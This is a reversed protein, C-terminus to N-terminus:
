EGLATIVALRTIAIKCREYKDAPVWFVIFNLKKDYKSGSSHTYFVQIEETKFNVLLPWLEDDDYHYVTEFSSADAWNINKYVRTELYDSKKFSVKLETFDSNFAQEKFIDGRYEKGIAQSLTKRLFKATEKKSSNENQAFACVCIICLFVSATIKKM